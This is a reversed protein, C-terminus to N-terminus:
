FIIQSHGRDAYGRGFIVDVNRFQRSNFIVLHGDEMKVDYVNHIRFVNDTQIREDENLFDITLRNDDLSYKAKGSEEEMEGNDGIWKCDVICNEADTFDLSLMITLGNQPIDIQAVWEGSLDGKSVASGGDAASLQATAAFVSFIVLLIANLRKMSM